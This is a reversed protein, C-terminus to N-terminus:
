GICLRQLCPSFFQSFIRLPYLWSTPPATKTPVAMIRSREALIIDFVSCDRESRSGCPRESWVNLYNQQSSASFHHFNHKVNQFILFFNFCEWQANWFAQPQVQSSHACQPGKNDQQLVWSRISTRHLEQDRSPYDRGKHKSMSAKQIEREADGDRGERCFQLNIM